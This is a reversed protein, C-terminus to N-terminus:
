PLLSFTSNTNSSETFIGMGIDILSFIVVFFDFKNWSNHFYSKFGLAFIKITAEITFIGSFFYNANQLINVM